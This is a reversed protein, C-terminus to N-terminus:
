SAVLLDVVEFRELDAQPEQELFRDVTREPWRFGGGAPRGRAAVGFKVNALNLTTDGAKIPRSPESVFFSDSGLKNVRDL